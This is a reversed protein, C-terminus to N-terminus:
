SPPRDPLHGLTAQPDPQATASRHRELKRRHVPVALRPSRRDPLHDQVKRPPLTRAEDAPILLGSVLKHRFTSAHHLLQGTCAQLSEPVREAPRRFEGLTNGFTEKYSYAVISIPHVSPPLGVPRVSVIRVPLSTVNHLIPLGSDYIEDRHIPGTDAIGAGILFVAAHGSPSPSCATVLGLVLAALPFALRKAPFMAVAYTAIYSKPM